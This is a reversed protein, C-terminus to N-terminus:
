LLHEIGDLNSIKHRAHNNLSIQLCGFMSEMDALLKGLKRLHVRCYHEFLTLNDSKDHNTKFVLRELNKVLSLGQLQCSKQQSVLLGYAHKASKSDLVDKKVHQLVV